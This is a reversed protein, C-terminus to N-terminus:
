NILADLKIKIPLHFVNEEKTAKYKLGVADANYLLLIIKNKDGSKRLKKLASAKKGQFFSPAVNFAEGVLEKGDENAEIDFCNYNENGFEVKYSNFKLEQFQTGKLLEEIGYLITLDTMIRNAAEFLTVHPYPGSNVKERKIKTLFSLVNDAEVLVPVQKLLELYDAIAKDINLINLERQHIM